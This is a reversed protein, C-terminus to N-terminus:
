GAVASVAISSAGAYTGSSIVKVRVRDGILGDLLTDDALTGDTPTAVARATAAKVAAVKVAATTAFALCAIDIWTAGDDLSTQVYVKATTGGSGYAFTAQLAIARVDPPLPM